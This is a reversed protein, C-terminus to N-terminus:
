VTSYHGCVEEERSKGLQQPLHLKFHHNTPSYYRLRLQTHVASSYIKM